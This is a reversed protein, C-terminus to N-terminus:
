GKVDIAYVTELQGLLAQSNFEAIWSTDGQRAKTLAADFAARLANALDARPGPVAKMYPELTQFFGEGEVLKVYADEPNGRKSDFEFLEHGISYVFVTQLRADFRQVFRAYLEDDELAMTEAGKAKLAEDVTCSGEKILAFLEANLTTGNNGDRKTALRALGRRGAEANTPGSGLYGYAEDYHKRSPAYLEQMVSLYLFRYFGVKEFRQKALKVELKTDANRLDEIAGLISQDIAVGVAAAAGTLHV